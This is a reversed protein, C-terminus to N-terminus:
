WIYVKGKLSFIALMVKMNKTYDHLEFFKKMGHFWAEEDEPKNLDGDFTPPKSKKFENSLYQKECRRYLHYSHHGHQRELGSSSYLGYGSGIIDPTDKWRGGRVTDDKDLRHGAHSSSCIGCKEKGGIWLQGM